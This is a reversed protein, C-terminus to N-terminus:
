SHNEFSEFSGSGRHGFHGGYHGGHHGGHGGYGGYGGYGPYRNYHGFNGFGFQPSRGVIKFDDFWKLEIFIIYCIGDIIWNGRKRNHVVYPARAPVAACLTIM